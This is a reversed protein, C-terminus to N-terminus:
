RLLGTDSTNIGDHKPLKDLLRMGGPTIGVLYESERYSLVVIRERTGVPLTLSLNINSSDGHATHFRKIGKLVLWALAVVLILALLMFLLEFLYNDM